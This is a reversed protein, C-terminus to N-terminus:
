LSKLLHNPKNNSMRCHVYTLETSEESNNKSTEQQSEFIGMVLSVGDKFKKGLFWGSANFYFFENNKFSLKTLDEPITQSDAFFCLVVIDFSDKLISV